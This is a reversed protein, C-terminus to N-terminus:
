EYSMLCRNHIRSDQSLVIHQLFQFIWGTWAFGVGLKELGEMFGAYIEFSIVPLGPTHINVVITEFYTRNATSGVGSSINSKMAHYDLGIAAALSLPFVCNDAGTDLISRCIIRQGSSAVLETILIPRCVNRGGPFAPDPPAKIQTYQFRYQVLPDVRRRIGPVRTILPANEGNEKSDAIVTSVDPGYTVVRKHDHSIAVWAGKPVDKTLGDIDVAPITTTSKRM